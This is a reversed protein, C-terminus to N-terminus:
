KSWPHLAILIIVGIVCVVVVVIILTIKYNQWQMRRRVARSSGHFHYSSSSLDEARANLADLNEGREVLKNITTTLVNTTEHVDARLASVNSYNPGKSATPDSMEFVLFSNSNGHSPSFSLYSVNFFFLYISHTM